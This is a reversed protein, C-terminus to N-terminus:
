KFLILPTIREVDNKCPAERDLPKALSVFTGDASGCITDCYIADVPASSCVIALSVLSNEFIPVDITSSSWCVAWSLSFSDSISVPTPVPVTNPFASVLWVVCFVVSFGTVLEVFVLVLVFLWCLLLLVVYWCLLLLVLLWCLLLELELLLLWEDFLLWLLM